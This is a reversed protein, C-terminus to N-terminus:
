VCAIAAAKPLASTSLITFYLAETLSVLDALTHLHTTTHHTHKAYQCPLLLEVILSAALNDIQLAGCLSDAVAKM